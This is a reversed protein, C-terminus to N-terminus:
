GGPPNQRACTPPNQRAAFALATDSSFGLGLVEGPPPYASVFGGALHFSASTALPEALTEGISDLRIRFSSSVLIAGDRPHGGANFSQERLKFSASQQAAAVASGLLCITLAVVRKCDM